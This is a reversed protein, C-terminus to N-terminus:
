RKERKDRREGTRQGKERRQRSEERRGGRKVVRL